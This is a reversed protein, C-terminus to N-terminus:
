KLKGIHQMQVRHYMHVWYGYYKVGHRAPDQSCCSAGRAQEDTRQQPQQALCPRAASYATHNRGQQKDPQSPQRSVRHTHTNNDCLKCLMHCLRWIRAPASPRQRHTEAHNSHIQILANSAKSQAQILQPKYSTYPAKPCECYLTTPVRSHQRQFNLQKANNRLQITSSIEATDDNQVSSYPTQVRLPMINTCAATGMHPKPAWSYPTQASLQATRLRSIDLLTSISHSPRSSCPISEKQLQAKPKPPKPHPHQHAHM